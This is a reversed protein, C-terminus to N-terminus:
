REIEGSRNEGSESALSLPMSMQEVPRYPVSEGGSDQETMCTAIKNLPTEAFIHRADDIDLDSPIEKFFKDGLERRFSCYENQAIVIHDLVSMQLTKAARIINVSVDIDADSPTVNGSPHNHALAISAAGRLLSPRIVDRPDIIASSIDGISIIDRGMIENRVNFSLTIFHEQKKGKFDSTLAYIDDPENVKASVKSIHALREGINYSLMLQNAEQESLGAKTLDYVGMHAIDSMGDKAYRLLGYVTEIDDIGGALSILEANSLSQAGYFQLKDEPRESKPLESFKM